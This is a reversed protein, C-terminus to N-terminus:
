NKNLGIMLIMKKNILLWEACWCNTSNKTFYNTNKKKQSFITQIELM